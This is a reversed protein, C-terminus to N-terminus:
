FAATAPARPPTPGYPASTPSRVPTPTTSTRTPPMALSPDRGAMTNASCKAQATSPWHRPAAPPTASVLRQHRDGDLDVGRRTISYNWIVAHNLPLPLPMGDPQYQAYGVVKGHSNFASAAIAKGQGYGTVPDGNAGVYPPDLPSTPRPLEYMSGGSYVFAVQAASSNKAYGVMNGLDDIDTARNGGTGNGPLLLATSTGATGGTYFYGNDPPNAGAAIQGSSNIALCTSQDAGPFKASLDNMTGATGGTYLFAKYNGLGFGVVADNDGANVDFPTCWGYSALASLDVFTAASGVAPAFAALSLVCFLTMRSRSM